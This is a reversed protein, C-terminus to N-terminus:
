AGPPRRWGSPASCRERGTSRESSGRPQAHSPSTACPSGCCWRRGAAPQAPLDVAVVRRRGPLRRRVARDATTVGGLGSWAGIARARDDPHFSAQIIALSGPTLLAGGVGQLMRAAVLMTSTRPWAACCRPSRSGSSASSSCAGGASATAAARRRGPDALRADLTYGNIVWQLGAFDADLDAGLRPLAVNVVTADLSAIGSGLVTGALVWRGTSSALRLGDGESTPSSDAM